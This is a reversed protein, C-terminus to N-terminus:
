KDSSSKVNEVEIIKKGEEIMPKEKIIIQNMLNVSWALNDEALELINKLHKIREKSKYENLEQEIKDKGYEIKYNHWTRRTIGANACAETETIFNYVLFEYIKPKTIDWDIVKSM